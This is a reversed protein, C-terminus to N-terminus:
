QLDLSGNKYVPIFTGHGESSVIEGDKMIVMGRVISMVPLGKVEVGEFPTWNTKSHLKAGSIKRRLKLDVITLDADSGIRIIGKRPYFGFSKAPM